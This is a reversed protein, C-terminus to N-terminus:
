EPAWAAPLGGRWVFSDRAEQSKGLYGARSGPSGPCLPPRLLAGWRLGRQARALTGTHQAPAWRRRAAAGCVPLHNGSSGPSCLQRPPPPSAPPSTARGQDSSPWAHGGGDGRRGSLTPAKGGLHGGLGTRLLGGQWSGQAFGRPGLRPPSLGGQSALHRRNLSRCAPLPRPGQGRKQALCSVRQDWVQWSM